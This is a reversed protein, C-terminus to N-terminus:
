YRALMAARATFVFSIQRWSCLLFHIRARLLLHVISKLMSDRINSSQM